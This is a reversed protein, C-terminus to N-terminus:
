LYCFNVRLIPSDFDFKLDIKELINPSESRSNLNDQTETILDTYTTQMIKDDEDSRKSDNRSVDNSRSSGEYNSDRNPDKIKLKEDKTYLCTTSVFVKKIFSM